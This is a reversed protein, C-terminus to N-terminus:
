LTSVAAAEVKIAPRTRVQKIFIRVESQLKSLDSRAISEGAPLEYRMKKYLYAIRKAPAALDSDLLAIRESFSDPGEGVSRVLGLRQMSKAHRLYCSDVVHLKHKVGQRLLSVAVVGLVLASVGLIFLAIRWPTVAGLWSELIMMQTESDYNLIWKSWSYNIGDWRLRLWQLAAIDRASFPLVTGDDLEDQLAESFGHEVREPAVAATPDVRVWGKGEFWVETWAHADFQHVLVYGDYPNLEGGQYGVVVRAPVGAARMLFVFSSAYHECFGRRQEFMFEDISERGLKGPKLTYVFPERNFHRLVSQMYARDSGQKQRLQKAFLLSRPNYADPLQLGAQRQAPSLQPSLVSDPYSTVQYQFRSELPFVTRLTFDKAPLVTDSTSRAYALSYLWPQKNPEITVTYTIPEGGRVVETLSKRSYPQWQNSQSQQTKPAVTRWRRGDFHNFVLGRWYMKQTDPVEGEFSVRFALEGSNALESIDGPSMSDSPGTKGSSQAGPVSWLPEIRPFVIFMLITLPIAQLLLKAAIRLAPLPSAGTQQQRGPDQQLAVLAATVLVVAVVMYVADQIQQEFLFHTAAVFYALFIVATVDRKHKMEILKLAFATVLLAVIPELSFLNGYSSFIGLVAIVVLLFKLIGSPYFGRGTYLVIRWVACVVCVLTVWTPLRFLHPLLVAVQAMLLAALCNRPIQFEVSM